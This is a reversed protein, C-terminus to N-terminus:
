KSLHDTIYNSVDGVTRFLILDDVPIELNYKEELESSMQVIDFSNLDLDVALTSDYTIEKKDIKSYESLFLIVQDLM